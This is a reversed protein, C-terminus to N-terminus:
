RCCGPSAGCGARPTPPRSSGCGAAHRLQLQRVGDHRAARLGPRGHRPAAAVIGPQAAAVGAAAHRRAVALALAAGAHVRLRRVPGRLRGLRSRAVPRRRRRGRALRRRVRPARAPDCPRAPRARVLGLGRDRARRAPRRPERDCPCPIRAPGPPRHEARPAARAVPRGRAALRARARGVAPRLGRRFRPQHPPGQRRDLALAFWAWSVLVLVRATWAVVPSRLLRTLRVLPRGRLEDLRVERWSRTLLWFTAVLVLAAGVVVYEFPLPLDKRSGIGHAPLQLLVWADASM